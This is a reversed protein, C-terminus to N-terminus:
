TRLKSHIENELDDLPVTAKKQKEIEGNIRVKEQKIYDLVRVAKKYISDYNKLDSDIELFREYRKDARDEKIFTDIL